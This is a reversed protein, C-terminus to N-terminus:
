LGPLRWPRLHWTKCKFQCPYRTVYTGRGLVHFKLATSVNQTTPISGQSPPPRGKTAGHKEERGNDGIGVELSTIYSHDCQQNTSKQLSSFSLLLSAFHARPGAEPGLATKLGSIFRFSSDNDQSNPSFTGKTASFTPSAQLTRNVKKHQTFKSTM